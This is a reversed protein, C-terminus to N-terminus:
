RVVLSSCVLLVLIASIKKPSKASGAPDAIQARETRLLLQGLDFVGFAINAIAM